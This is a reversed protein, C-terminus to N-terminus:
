NNTSEMLDSSYVTSFQVIWRCTIPVMVPLIFCARCSLVADRNGFPFTNTVPPYLPSDTELSHQITHDNVSVQVNVPFILLARHACVADTNLFPFTNTTPQHYYHECELSCQTIHDM